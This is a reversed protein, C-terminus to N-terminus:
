HVHVLEGSAREVGVFGVGAGVSWNSPVGTGETLHSLKHRRIPLGRVKREEKIPVVKEVPTVNDEEETTELEIEETSPPASPAIPIRRTPPQAIPFEKSHTHSNELQPASNGRTLALKSRLLNSSTPRQSSTTTSTQPQAQVYESSSRELGNRRTGSGGSIGTSTLTNLREVWRGFDGASLHLEWGVLELFARENENIEQVNLGSIRSWAKNSYNRDQLYKSASILSALFMRRGCLLPSKQAHLLRTILSSLSEEPQSVPTSASPSEPPSPYASAPDIEEEKSSFYRPNVFSSEVEKEKDEETKQALKQIEERSAQALAVADRIPKRSKHLYYLCLQLTSCSTRSRRLVERVFYHLPLVSSSTSFQTTGVPTSPGWISEIALVSAGSLWM